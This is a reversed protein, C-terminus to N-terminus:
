VADRESELRQIDERGESDGTGAIWSELRLALQGVTAQQRRSEDVLIEFIHRYNTLGRESEGAFLERRVLGSESLIDDFLWGFAREEALEHWRWMERLPSESEGLIRCRDLQGLDLDFFPTLWAKQRLSRDHPAAVAQLLTYIHRAEDTEFLGEQRYFVFPVGRERLHRGIRRGERRTRALVHIEGPALTRREGAEPDR